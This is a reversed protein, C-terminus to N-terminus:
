NIGGPIGENKLRWTSGSVHSQNDKIVGIKKKWDRCRRQQKLYLLHCCPHDFSIETGAHRIFNQAHGFSEGSGWIELQALRHQASSSGSFDSIHLLVWCCLSLKCDQNERNSAEERDFVVFTRWDCHEMLQAERHYVNGWVERAEGLM